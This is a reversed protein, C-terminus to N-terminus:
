MPTFIILWSWRSKLFSKELETLLEGTHKHLKRYEKGHPVVQEAPYINGCYLDNLVM